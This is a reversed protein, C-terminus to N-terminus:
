LGENSAFRYLDISNKYFSNRMQIESELRSNNSPPKNLPLNYGNRIPDQKINGNNFYRKM